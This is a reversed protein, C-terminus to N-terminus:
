ILKNKKLVDYITSGKNSSPNKKSSKTKQRIHHELMVLPNLKYMTLSKWDSAEQLHQLTARIFVLHDQAM